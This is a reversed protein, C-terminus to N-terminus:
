SNLIKNLDRTIETVLKENLKESPGIFERKPMKFPHKGWAKGDLGENHIAAYVKDTQITITNGETKYDISDSLHDGGGQGTLIKKELKTKKKRSAWKNGDFGEEVFNNKFHKVAEIGIIEPVDNALYEKAENLKRLLEDAGHVNQNDLPM